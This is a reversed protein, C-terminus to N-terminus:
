YTGLAIDNNTKEFVTTAKKIDDKKLKTVEEPLMKLVIRENYKYTTEFSKGFYNRNFLVRLRCVENGKEKLTAFWPYKYYAYRFNAPRYRSGKKTHYTKPEEVIEEKYKDYLLGNPVALLIEAVINPDYKKELIQDIDVHIIQMIYTLCPKKITAIEYFPPLQPKFKEQAGWKDQIGYSTQREGVEAVGLYDWSNEIYDTKVDINIFAEDNEFFLDSGVPISCPLWDTRKAFISHFIREAGVGLDSLRKMEEGGALEKMWFDYLRIRLYFRDLIEKINESVIDQIINLYKLELEELTALSLTEEPM